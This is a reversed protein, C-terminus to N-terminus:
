DIAYKRLKKIARHATVKIATESKGLMEAIEKYSYGYIYHFTVIERDERDLRSLLDYTSVRDDEVTSKVVAAEFWVNELGVGEGDVAEDFVEPLIVENKHDRWYNAIHNKAITYLWASVSIERDYSDFSKLAKVFIESVLDEALTQDKGVRFYAFRYIKDINDKYFKEFEQKRNMFFTYCRFRPYEFIM